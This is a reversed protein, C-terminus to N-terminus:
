PLRTPLGIPTRQQCCISWKKNKRHRTKLRGTNSLLTVWLLIWFRGPWYMSLRRKYLLRMHILLGLGLLVHMEDSDTDKWKHVMSHPKLSGVNDVIFQAAYRNTELVMMAILEDTIYSTNIVFVLNSTEPHCWKSVMPIVNSLDQYCRLLKVVNKPIILLYPYIPYAYIRDEVGCSCHKIAEQELPQWTGYSRLTM